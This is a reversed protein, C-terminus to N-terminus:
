VRLDGGSNVVCVYRIADDTVQASLLPDEVLHGFFSSWPALLVSHLQDSPVGWFSQLSYTVNSRIKLQVDSIRRFYLIYLIRYNNNIICYLM